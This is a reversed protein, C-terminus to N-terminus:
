KQAKLAAILQPLIRGGKGKLFLDAMVAVEDQEPNVDIVTAGARAALFPLSAAPQVAGSTGVVLMAECRLSAEYAEQVVSAPLYEGFWVVDPRIIDGCKPCRPPKEAQDAFDALTFDTHRGSLCKYRHINGHLEVVHSSGAAQHLGDINQTVVSVSPFLRELEVIARHGANPQASLVMGFRQEYWAWVLKPNRLFGEQSAMEMPDYQAWLGDQAERFTPIGSEKSVGAGTLVVLRRVGALRRAAEKATADM